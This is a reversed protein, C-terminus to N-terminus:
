SGAALVAYGPEHQIEIEAIHRFDNISQPGHGKSEPDFIRKSVRQIVGKVARETLPEASDEQADIRNFLSKPQIKLKTYARFLLRIRDKIIDALEIKQSGMSKANKFENLYIYLARPNKVLYNGQEKIDAKKNILILNAFDNRLPPQFVYMAVILWDQVQKIASILEKKSKKTISPNPYHKMMMERLSDMTYTYRQARAQTSTDSAYTNASQIIDNLLAEYREKLDQAKALKLFEIIHFMRTKRTTPVKSDLVFTKMIHDVNALKDTDSENYVGLKNLFKIRANRTATSLTSFM